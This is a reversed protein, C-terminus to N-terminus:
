SLLAEAFRPLDEDPVERLRRAGVVGLATRVQDDKGQQVLDLVTRALEDRDVPKPPKKAATKKAAAKKAPKPKVEGESITGASVFEPEPELLARILPTADNLQVEIHHVDLAPLTEVLVKFAPDDATFRLTIM